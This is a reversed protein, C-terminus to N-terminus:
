IRNQPQPRTAQQRPEQSTRAPHREQYRQMLFAHHRNDMKTSWTTLEALTGHDDERNALKEQLHPKLGRAFIDMLAQEDWGTSPALTQFKAYFDAVSGVQKLERIRRRATSAPDPDGFAAKIATKLGDYTTP